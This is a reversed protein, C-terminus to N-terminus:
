FEAEGRGGTFGTQLTEKALKGKGQAVWKEKESCAASFSPELLEPGNVPYRLGLAIIGGTLQM